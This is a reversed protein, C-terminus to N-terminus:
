YKYTLTLIQLYYKTDTLLVAFKVDVVNVIPVVVILALWTLLAKRVDPNNPTVFPDVILAVNITILLVVDFAITEPLKIETLLVALKVEVVNVIPM